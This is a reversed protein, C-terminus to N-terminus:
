RRGSPRQATAPQLAAHGKRQLYESVAEHIIKQLSLKADFSYRRLREHDEATVFLNIQRLKATDADLAPATASPVAPAPAPAPPPPDLPKLLAAMTRKPRAPPPTESM